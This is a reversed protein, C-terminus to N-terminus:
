IYLFSLKAMKGRGDMITADDRFPITKGQRNQIKGRLVFFLRVHAEPIANSAHYQHDNFTSIEGNRASLTDVGASALQEEVRVQHEVRDKTTRTYNHMDPFKTYEAVARETADRALRDFKVAFFKEKERNLCKYSLLSAKAVWLDDVIAKVAQESLAPLGSLVRTGCHDTPKQPDINLCSTTVVSRGGSATWVDAREMSEDGYMRFDNSDMHWTSANNHRVPHFRWLLQFHIHDESVFGFERIADVMPSFLQAHKALTRAVLEENRTEWQVQVIGARLASM